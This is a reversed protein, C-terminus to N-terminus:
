ILVVSIVKCCISTKATTTIIKHSSTRSQDDTTMRLGVHLAVEEGGGRAYIGVHVFSTDDNNVRCTFLGNYDPDTEVNTTGRSLRSLSPVTNSDTRIQQITGTRSTTDSFILGDTTRWSARIRTESRCVLARQRNVDGVLLPPPNTGDLILEDHFILTPGTLTTGGWTVSVIYM